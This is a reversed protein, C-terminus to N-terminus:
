VGCQGRLPLALLVFNSALGRALTIDSVSHQSSGKARCTGDSSAVVLGFLLPLASLPPVQRSNRLGVDDHALHQLLNSLLLVSQDRRNRLDGAM